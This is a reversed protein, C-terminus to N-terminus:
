NREIKCSIPNHKAMGFLHLLQVVEINRENRRVISSRQKKATEYEATTM